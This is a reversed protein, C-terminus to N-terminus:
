FEFSMGLSPGSMNLEVDKTLDAFIDDHWSEYQWYKYGAKMYIKNSFRYSFDLSTLTYKFTGWIWRQGYEHKVNAKFQETKYIIIGWGIVFGDASYDDRIENGESKLKLDAEINGLGAFLEFGHKNKFLVMKNVVVTKRKLKYIQSVDAPGMIEQNRFKLSENANLRQSSQGQSSILSLEIKTYDQWKSFENSKNHSITDDKLRFSLQLDPFFVNRDEGKVYTGCYSESVMILPLIIFLIIIVYDKVWKM